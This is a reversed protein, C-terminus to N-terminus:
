TGAPTATAAYCAGLALGLPRCKAANAIQWHAAEVAPYCDGRPAEPTTASQVSGRIRGVPWRKRAQLGM